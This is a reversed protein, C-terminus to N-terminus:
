WPRPRLHAPAGAAFYSVDGVYRAPPSDEDAAPLLVKFSARVAQGPRLSGFYAPDDPICEAGSPLSATDIGLKVSEVSHDGCNRVSVTAVAQLTRAGSENAGSGPTPTFRGIDIQPVLGTLVASTEALSDAARELAGMAKAGPEANVTQRFQYNRTLSEAQEILLITRHICGLRKPRTSSTGATVGSVYKDSEGVIRRLRGAAGPTSAAMVHLQDKLDVLAVRSAKAVDTFRIIAIEGAAMEGPKSIVATDPVDCGELRRLMSVCKAPSVATNDSQGGPDTANVPCFSLKELRYVGRTVKLKLLYSSPKNGSNWLCVAGGAESHVAYTQIARATADTAVMGAASCQSGLQAWLFWDPASRVTQAADGSRSAEMLEAPAVGSAQQLRDCMIKRQAADVATHKMADVVICQPTSAAASQSQLIASNAAAPDRAGAVAATQLNPLRLEPQLLLGILVAISCAGGPLTRMLRSGLGAAPHSQVVQSNFYTM